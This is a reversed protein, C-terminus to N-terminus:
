LGGALLGGMAEVYSRRRSANTSIFGLASAVFSRYNQGDERMVYTKFKGVAQARANYLVVSSDFAQVFHATDSVSGPCRAGPKHPERPPM